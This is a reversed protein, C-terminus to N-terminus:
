IYHKICIDLFEVFFRSFIKCVLRRMHLVAYRQLHLGEVIFVPRLKASGGRAAVKACSQTPKILGTKISLAM